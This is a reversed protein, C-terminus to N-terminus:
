RPTIDYQVTIGLLCFPLPDNGQIAFQPDLSYGFLGGVDVPLDVPLNPYWPPPQGPIATIAYTPLPTVTSLTGLVPPAGQTSWNGGLSNLVRLYLRTISKTLGAIPGAKPDLDLRMPQVAWNVPFGVVLVDGPAPVYNALTINGNIDIAGPYDLNNWATRGNLSVCRVGYQWYVSTAAIVNTAPSTIIAASDAYVAQTLDPQGTNATHWDIPWLREIYCQGLGNRLVSVWVEDDKGNAGYIVQVSLVLDTTNVGSVVGHTEHRAWGFVEQEMAYTMSILSGDGCVAWLLSHNEFEQQFDFQKVRAATLHQSLVQMDQSMYKNTFVSFLMQQFRTGKRTVYFAANGVILGPLNPASGNASHEVALVASPTIAASGGQGSNMIWEAGALGIMLDTQATMWQIPGRGPANLDFALGYTAQSQDLLAFNEIDNTQTGWIRQPQYTSGGYWVREQFVAVAQPYGRYDSWAGESWYITANTSYLPTIVQATQIYPSGLSWHTPDSPPITTGSTNVICTYSHAGYNIVNGVVYANGSVWAAWLETLQVLGYVFQNDATLSLRPVSASAAAVPNTVVLRYLGGVIDQGSINFNADSRSSVTTIVQWTVGNDYSAQV